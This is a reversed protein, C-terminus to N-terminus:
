DERFQLNTFGPGAANCVIRTGGPRPIDQWHPLEDLTRRHIGTNDIWLRDCGPHSMLTPSHSAVIAQSRGDRHLEDLLALM